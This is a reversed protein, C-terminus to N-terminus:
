FPQSNPRWFLSADLTLQTDVHDGSIMQGYRMGIADCGQEVSELFHAGKVVGLMEDRLLTCGDPALPVRFLM